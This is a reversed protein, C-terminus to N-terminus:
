AWHRFFGPRLRNCGRAILLLANGNHRDLAKVIRVGFFQLHLELAWAHAKMSFNALRRDIPRPEREGSEVGIEGLFTHLHQARRFM